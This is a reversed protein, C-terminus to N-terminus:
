WKKKYSDVAVQICHIVAERRFEEIQSLPILGEEETDMGGESKRKNGDEKRVEPLLKNLGFPDQQTGVDSKPFIEQEEVINFDKSTVHIEQNCKNLKEAQLELNNHDKELTIM